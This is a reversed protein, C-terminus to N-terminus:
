VGSSGFGQKGRETETLEMESLELMNTPYLSVPLLQAIKMGHSITQPVGSHNILVIAVEDRYGSDIVGAMTDLGNKVALGSRPWVQWVVDPPCSVAIGTPIKQWEGPQLTIGQDPKEEPLCAFVDFGADGHHARVPTKADPRVKKHYLM